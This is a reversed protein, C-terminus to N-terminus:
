NIKKSNQRKKKGSLWWPVWSVLELLNWTDKFYRAPNFCITSRLRAKVWWRNQREPCWSIDSEWQTKQKV